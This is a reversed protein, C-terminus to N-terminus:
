PGRSGPIIGAKRTDDLRPRTSPQTASSAGPRSFITPAACSGSTRLIMRRPGSRGPCSTTSNFHRELAAYAATLRVSSAAAGTEAGCPTGCHRRSKAALPLRRPPRHRPRPANKKDVYVGTRTSRTWCRRSRRRSCTRWVAPPAKTGCFSKARQVERFLREDATFSFHVRLTKPQGADMPAPTETELPASPTAAVEIATIFLDPATPTPSAVARTPAAGIFRVREAAAPAACFAALLAEVERTSKGAAARVLRRHNDWKLHPALLSVTTVSLLGRELTRYLIPFKAAARSAHIRRAAAGHAYRLERVCYEFLSPFGTKEALRRRDMEELHKLVAVTRGREETALSKLSLILDQDTLTM